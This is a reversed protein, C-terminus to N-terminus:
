DTTPAESPERIDLVQRVIKEAKLLIDIDAFCSVASELHHSRAINSGMAEDVLEQRATDLMKYVLDFDSLVEDTPENSDKAWVTGLWEDFANRILEEPWDQAQAPLASRNGARFAEFLDKMEIPAM